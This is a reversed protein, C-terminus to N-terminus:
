IERGFTSYTRINMKMQKENSGEKRSLRRDGKYVYTSVTILLGNALM